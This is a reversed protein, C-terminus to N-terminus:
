GLGEELAKVAAALADDLKAPDKGGAQAMDPRGGGGGGMAQGAVRVVDGAKLGRENLDRTLGVLVYPKGKAVGALAAAVSAERQRLGDVLARAQDPPTEGLNAAVLLTGGIRRGGDALDAASVADRQQAARLEKRLSRTQEQTQEVAEVVKEEPVKLLRSLSRVAEERERVRRLASHGTVAEIRRVGAAVSGESVITFLGIDGTASCHLGGCLEHSFDGVSVVRVEEGYKEGFLAMAGRAQAQEISTTEFGVAMNRLITENVIDEVRRLEEPSPADLHTFDFRLRDPGVLSGSQEAHEGLVSRLAKHLLHTATHNRRIDGQRAGDPRCLVAAGTRLGGRTVQGVHVFMGEVRLTDTVEFGAEGSTLEGLDGVEGGSEGYFTTRDLVVGAEDGEEARDVLEDGKLLALVVAETESQEYGLFRTEGHRAKLDALPGGGFIDAAITSGARSRERQEELASQFGEMDIRVGAEDLMSEADEASFGYTDFLRFAEHGELTDGGSERLRAVLEDLISAGRKLTAHFREEETKLIRSINERRTRVEPYTPMVEAIVPTLLYLLPEERGLAIADRVARRIVKRLVYGRGTRGPLIGDGICFTAARVHDAIRRFRAGLGGDREAAYSRGTAREIEALIPQFIDIDYNTTKGQMVAAMRELGMGTDINQTPLTELIDVGQRDYQQFVLNWIECFRHCDCAPDCDPRGCGEGEGWDFFIESCPGCLGNPGEKPCDAPWFNEHDDYRCIWDERVGVEDRWLAFAEDDSDHVSVRLRDKSLGMPGTLFEWAWVIAELKFYDGFSFNGLMEFFTHHYATRGVNDLDGTRFCKQSTVARTFGPEGRGTFEAKFQNMGAGTFLLSKDEAPPVLSDSALHRHGRQVYFEIYARRVEDTRM